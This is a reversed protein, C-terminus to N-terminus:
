RDRSAAAGVARAIWDLWDRTVDDRNTENLMEHRGGPYIRVKLRSHGTQAYHLALRGMGKDGGIPDEAGGTILIPLDAPIRGLAADTSIQLMGGTLDRWLGATFPGGALPDAIYRDVEAADRSLWDYDTRRDRIGKNFAAFGLKDLLPSVNKEGLRRCEFRALVHGAALETRRPWTSGSLLLGALRGGHFMAFHQALYSGMSHGLLVQPRGPYHAVIWEHVLLADSVLLDWGGRRAFYGATGRVPGHGRHDHAVVAIGRERAATAFRVYRDSYEGLGHLIHIVGVPEAPAPFPLIRIRHGDPTSLGPTDDAPDTM